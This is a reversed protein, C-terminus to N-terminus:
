ELNIRAVNNKARSLLDIPQNKYFLEVGTANGVIIKAPPKFDFNEIGGAAITREYIVDGATNQVQVWTLQTAKLKISENGPKLVELKIIEPNSMESKTVDPKSTIITSSAPKPTELKIPTQTTALDTASPAVVSPTSIDALREAAPLAQPPLVNPDQSAPAPTDSANEDAAQNTAQSATESLVQNSM